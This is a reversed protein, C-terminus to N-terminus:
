INPIFQINKKGTEAQRSIHCNVKFVEGVMSETLVDDTAGAYEIRNGNLVYLNDCYLAALNLDHIAALVTKDQRKLIDFIQLQFSIDLHNTPEDLILIDTQQALARAILVRQKEGGSLESFDRQALDQMQMTAMAEDVIRNDEDTDSEFLRKYPTRGMKVIELVSFNFPVSHEQGVVAMQRALSKRKMRRIDQGNISINGSQPALGGYICKLITSKGSGNPGIIGVFSGKEVALAVDEVAVHEDYAYSLQEVQLSMM